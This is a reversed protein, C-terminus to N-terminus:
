VKFYYQELWIPHFNVWVNLQGIRRCLYLKKEANKSKGLWQIKRCLCLKMDNQITASMSDGIKDLLFM